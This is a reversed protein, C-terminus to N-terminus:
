NLHFNRSPLPLFSPSPRSQGLRHKLIQSLLSVKSLPRYPVELCIKDLCSATTNPKYHHFAHIGFKVSCNYLNHTYIKSIFCLFNWLPSGSLCIQIDQTALTSVNVTVSWKIKKLVLHNCTEQTQRRTNFGVSSKNENKAQFQLSWVSIDPKLDFNCNEDLCIVKYAPSDPSAEFLTIYLTHSSVAM